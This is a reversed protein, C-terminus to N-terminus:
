QSGGRVSEGHLDKGDDEGGETLANILERHLTAEDQLVPVMAEMVQAMEKCHRYDAYGYGLFFAVTLCLVTGIIQINM